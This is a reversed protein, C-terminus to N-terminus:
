EGHGYGQSDGLGQEIFREIESEPVRIGRKGIRVTRIKGTRILCWLHSRGIRLRECAEKITTLKVLENNNLM